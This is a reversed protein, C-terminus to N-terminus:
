RELPPLAKEVRVALMITCVVKGGLGAARPRPLPGKNPTCNLSKPHESRIWGNVVAIGAGGFARM